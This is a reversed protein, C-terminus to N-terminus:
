KTSKNLIENESAEKALVIFINDYKKEVYYGLNKTIM